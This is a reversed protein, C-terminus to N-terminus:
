SFGYIERSTNLELLQELARCRSALHAGPVLKVAPASPADDNPTFREIFGFIEETYDSFSQYEGSFEEDGIVAYSGPM